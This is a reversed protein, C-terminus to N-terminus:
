SGGRIWDAVREGIMIATCNTNARVVDPMVSADVVRLGQLGHVRCYQDVVALPDTDPGMKCTGSIHSTHRVNRLMWSDLAEDSALDEDTPAVRHDIVDLFGEHELLRIALRVGERLRERDWAEALLNYDLFPQVTPDTSTLRLEGYGVVLELQVSLGYGGATAPHAGAPDRFSSPLLQMDNRTTSGTATYRLVTQLRPGDPDGLSGPKARTVVSVSPHDRLNQGVGPLDHLVPIGLEGLHDAPGIGSLMLLQPSAVAGAALVVQDGQVVFRQGGSEVELGTARNGEILIRRVLVGARLTLNLRHRNPNIYGLATSMRVGGVNNLPAPGVGWEQPGNHDETHPFGHDLAAQLFAGHYAQLEERPFRKVPVPGDSGHFDGRIDLDRELKRFYPLVGLYDWETNGMSAWGDFDEPLGRLFVQGNIASSGGVVRGRPVQIPQSQHGNARGEFSWNHPAGVEFAAFNYGNKLDPALSELDPYDPGAELLLVSRAPDESLRAALPCGASGAGVIIVDYKM